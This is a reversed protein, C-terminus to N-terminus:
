IMLTEEYLGVIYRIIGLYDDSKDVMVDSEHIGVKHERSMVEFRAIHSDPMVVELGHNSLIERYCKDFLSIETLTAAPVSFLISTCKYEKCRDIAGFITDLHCMIRELQGYSLGNANRKIEDASLGRLISMFNSDNPEKHLVGINDVKGCTLVNAYLENALYLSSESYFSLAIYNCSLIGCNNLKCAANVYSKCTGDVMILTNDVFDEFGLKSINDETDEFFDDEFDNLPKEFDDELEDSCDLPEDIIPEDLGLNGEFDNEFKDIDTNLGDMKIASRDLVGEIENRIENNKVAINEYGESNYLNARYGCNKAQEILSRVCSMFQERIEEDNHVSNEAGGGSLERVGLICDIGEELDRMIKDETHMMDLRMNNFVRDDKCYTDPINVFEKIQAKSNNKLKKYYAEYKNEFYICVSGLKDKGLGISKALNLRKNNISYRIEFSFANNTNTGKIRIVNNARLSVVINYKM